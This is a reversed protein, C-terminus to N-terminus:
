QGCADSALSGETQGKFHRVDVGEKGSGSSPGLDVGARLWSRQLQHEEEKKGEAVWDCNKLACKLCGQYRGM